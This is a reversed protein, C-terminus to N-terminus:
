HTRKRRRHILALGGVALMALAAPEPLSRGEYIGSLFIEEAGNNLTSISVNFLVVDNDNLGFPDVGTFIAYDAFGAGQNNLPLNDAPEPDLYAVTTGGTYVQNIDAQEDSSVDGSADPNGQITAPNLIIDLKVLTNNLTGGGTENLDLMIVIEDVLGNAFNLDYFAKLERGTTVYSEAFSSTDAGGGQPLDNNGNDGNFSGATNGIESGSFTFMRLDLTGNGSGTVQQPMPMIDSTEIPSAHVPGAVIGMAAALLVVAALPLRKHFTTMEIAEKKSAIRGMREQRARCVTCGLGRLRELGVLCGAAGDRLACVCWQPISRNLPVEREPCPCIWAGRWTRITGRTAPNALPFRRHKPTDRAPWERGLRGIASDRPGDPKM